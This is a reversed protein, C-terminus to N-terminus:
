FQSPGWLGVLGDWEMTCVSVWLPQSWLAPPHCNESQVTVQRRGPDWSRKLTSEKFSILWSPPRVCSQFLLFAACNRLSLISLFGLLVSSLNENIGVRRLGQIHWNNADHLYMFSRNSIMISFIVREELSHQGCLRFVTWFFFFVFFLFGTASYHVLGPLFNPTPADNYAILHLYLYCFIPPSIQM